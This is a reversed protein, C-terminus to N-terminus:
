SVALAQRMKGLASSRTRQAKQRSLGLEHAVEADPVPDGYTEFGYALRTVQRELDDVSAFAAEVLLEDEEAESNDWLPRVEIGREGGVEFRETTTGDFGASNGETLADYSDVNRVASLVAFFTERSMLFQPALAAAEYVNGEAARLIGFFRKLTREPVTFGAAYQAHVAVANMIYKSATAALRDYGSEPDFAAIAEILAAVAVSQVEELGDAREVAPGSRTYWKVGNRLAPAYAYMLDLTAQEDGKKAALIAERETEASEFRREANRTFIDALVNNFSM